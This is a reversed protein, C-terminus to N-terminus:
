FGKVSTIHALHHRSHWAYLAVVEALDFTRGYEPHTYIRTFDDNSANDLATTWRKHIGEIIQLSVDIPMRKADEMEAWVKEKYPNITPNVESLLLKTRIYANVHSDALHHIVQRVTWGDPRYPKDLTQDSLHATKAILIPPFIKLYDINERIKSKTYSQGYEFKGIPYQLHEM